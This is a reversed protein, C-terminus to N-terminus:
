QQLPIGYDKLTSGLKRLFDEYELAQSYAPHKYSSKRKKGTGLSMMDDHLITFIRAEEPEEEYLCTLADYAFNITV